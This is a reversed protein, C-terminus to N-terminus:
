SVFRSSGIQISRLVHERSPLQTTHLDLIGMPIISSGFTPVWMGSRICILFIYSLTLFWGCVQLNLGSNCKRTYYADGDWGPRQYLVVITGDYMVWGDRWAGKFGMQEDIWCKEREREEATLLRVFM